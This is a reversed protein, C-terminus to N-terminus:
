PDDFEEKLTTVSDSGGNAVWTIGFLYVVQKLKITCFLPQVKKICVEQFFSGKVRSNLATIPDKMSSCANTKNDFVWLNM